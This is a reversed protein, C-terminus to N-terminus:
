ARLDNREQAQVGRDVPRAFPVERRLHQCRARHLNLLLDHRPLWVLLRLVNILSPSQSSVGFSLCENKTAAATWGLTATAFLAVGIAICTYAAQKHLDLLNLEPNYNAEIGLWM